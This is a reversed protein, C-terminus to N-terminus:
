VSWQQHDREPNGLDRFQVVALGPCQISGVLQGPRSAPLDAPHGEVLARAQPLNPSGERELTNRLSQAEQLGRGVRLISFQLDHQRARLANSFARRDEQALTQVAAELQAAFRPNAGGGIQCSPVAPGTAQALLVVSSLM